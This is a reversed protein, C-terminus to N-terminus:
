RQADLIAQKLEPNVAAGNREAQEVVELAIRPHGAALYLSALNNAAEAHDPKARLAQRYAAAADDLRNLRLLINGHFFHYDAPIGTREPPPEALQRQVADRDRGVQDIRDQIARRAAETTARAYQERLDAIASDYSDRVRQLEDLHAAYLDEVLASSREYTAIARTMHGLSPEFRKELYDIKALLFHAASYDPVRQLCVELEKAAKALDRKEFAKRAKDYSARAAKYAQPNVTAARKAEAQALAPSAAPVGVLFWALLCRAVASARARGRAVAPAAAPPTGPVAAFTLLRVRM